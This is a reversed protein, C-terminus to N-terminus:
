ELKAEIKGSLRKLSEKVPHNEELRAISLAFNAAVDKPELSLDLKSFYNRLESKYQRNTAEEKNNNEAPKLIKLFVMEPCLEEISLVNERCWSIWEKSEATKHLKGKGVISVGKTKIYEIIENIKNESLDKDNVNVKDLISKQDGDVLLLIKTQLQSFAKIQNSLMESVGVGSNKVEITKRKEIPLMKAAAEVMKMLLLDEVLITTKEASFEIDGLRHFAQLKTPKEKVYVGSDSEDLVVLSEEPLLNVFTTSHTSIVVQLKKEKVANLVHAILRKQAGPHLSTEPEDLLLLDYNKLKELSLVLNVVALEGSGAFHETYKRTSTEFLVSVSFKPDYISHKIYRASTYKKSLITNVDLLQQSSLSANEKVRPVNYWSWDSRKEDVIRKLFRSKEGLDELKKAYSLGETSNHFHYFYREVPSSESKPNILYVKREVQNWRDASGSMFNENKGNKAPMAAMGESTVLKGPEWHAFFRKNPDNIKRAQIKENLTANFYTYWYRHNGDKKDIEDLSTAIWYKATSHDLPMGYLAHLISTKGGGNPGVLITIPFKFEIKTNKVFNKFKPFNIDHIFKDFKNNDFERRIEDITQQISNSM